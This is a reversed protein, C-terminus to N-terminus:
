ADFAAPLAIEFSIENVKPAGHTEGPGGVLTVVVRAPPVIVTFQAGGAV